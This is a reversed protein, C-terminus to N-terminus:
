AHHRARRVAHPPVPGLSYVTELVWSLVGQIISDVFGLIVGFWAAVDGLLAGIDM